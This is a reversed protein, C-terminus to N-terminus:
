KCNERAARRADDAADFRAEMLNLQAADAAAAAEAGNAGENIAAYYAENWADKYDRRPM